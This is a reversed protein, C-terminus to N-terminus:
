ADGFAESRSKLTEMIGERILRCGAIFKDSTIRYFVQQGEKREAVAHQDKLVRLHQSANPVSIGLREAIAGVPYEGEQLMWMIRLRKENALVSCFDAHIKFIESDLRTANDIVTNNAM